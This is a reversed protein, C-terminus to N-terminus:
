CKQRIFIQANNRNTEFLQIFGYIMYNELRRYFEKEGIVDAILKNPFTKTRGSLALRIQRHTHAKQEKPMLDIKAWLDDIM